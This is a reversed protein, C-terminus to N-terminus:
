DFVFSMVNRLPSPPSPHRPPGKHDGADQEGVPSHPFAIVGLVPRGYLDERGWM